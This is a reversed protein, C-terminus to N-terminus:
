TAGGIDLAKRLGELFEPSARRKLFRGIYDGEGQLAERQVWRYYSIPGEVQVRLSKRPTINANMEVHTSQEM